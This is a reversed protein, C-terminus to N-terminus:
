TLDPPSTRCLEANEALGAHNVIVTKLQARNVKGNANRPISKMPFLRVECDIGRTRLLAELKRATADKCDVIGVGIRPCPGSDTISVAAADAADWELRLLHEIEHVPSVDRALSDQLDLVGAEAARGVVYLEGEPTLWGLDGLDVWRAAESQAGDWRPDIRARVLGMRGSPCANGSRDVIAVEIGPLLHGVFGPRSLVDRAAARAVAGIETAGYRCYIEKCVHIMAAELLSKTPVSGSVEVLRLSRLQAGSKKAARTLALLQETAAIVYDISFLEIMRLAQFPSAAFCLTQGAAFTACVAMFTWGSSPGLLCLLLNWNFGTFGALRLGVEEVTVAIIKPQATTGSTPSMRCVSRADGFGKPLSGGVADTEFWDDTVGVFRSGPNVLPKANEDGLVATFTLRAIGSQSHELSISPIGIRFLALCLAFHRIPNAVLIAVRADGALGLNSLRLACRDIAVRLMGYTVVRDETVMAPQDPRTRLHFLICDFWYKM